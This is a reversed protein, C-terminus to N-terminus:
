RATRAKSGCGTATPSASASARKRAIFLPNRALIQRLWANQSGWSHYMHMPRQTIAHLLIAMATRRRASRRIGARCRISAKAVRARQQEPPQRTGHGEAALRFKRLPESYLQLVIPQPKGLFGRPDGLRLLRPQRLPLLAGEGPDRRALLLRERHLPRAPPPEARGHGAQRGRPRALRGAPRHRAAARAARHLGQARRSLAAQRPRRDHGAAEAARRPRAARGPVAARRPRAPDGPPPDCRGGRRSRQDPPRAALHLGLARSLHHRSARSRRVGGDRFLVRRCLHHAPDQIRRDRDKDSMMRMADPTNMASNWAMNAMYLFLTDIPYPDGAWANHIVMHMLGHVALPAEWSFAKDIRHPKGDIDLLLDEPATPFGLPLGHLAHMPGVQAAPKAPPPASKPFPPKYRFGGPCDISGLLM